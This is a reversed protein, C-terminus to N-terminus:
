AMKERLLRRARHLQAKSTGVATGSMEAIEDHRYGEVDHLVFAIRAGEPLASIAQELDMRLGPNARQQNPASDALVGNDSVERLGRRGDKKLRTLVTNITLRCLWTGFRSEGRFTSLKEWAKVFAEQALEEATLDNGAMRLCLAYVRNVHERYLCEFARASGERAEAVWRQEREVTEIRKM